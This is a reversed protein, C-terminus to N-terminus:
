AEGGYAARIEESTPLPTDRLKAAIQELDTLTFPRPARWPGQGDEASALVGARDFWVMLTRATTEGLGANKVLRGKSLGSQGKRESQFSPETILQEILKGLAAPTLTGPGTPWPSPTTAQAPGVPEEQPQRPNTLLTKLWATLQLDLSHFNSPRMPQSSEVHSAVELLLTPARHSSRSLPPAPPVPACAWRLGLTSPVPWPQWGYGRLVKSPSPGEAGVILLASAQVPHRKGRRWSVVLRAEPWPAILERHLQARRTPLAVVARTYPRTALGGGSHQLTLMPAHRLLLRRFMEVRCGPECRGWTCGGCGHIVVYYQQQAGIRMVVSDLAGHAVHLQLGAALEEPETPSAQPETACLRWLQRTTSM